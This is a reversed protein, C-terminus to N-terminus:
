DTGYGCPTALAEWVHEGDVTGQSMVVEFQGWVPYGGERWYPSGELDPGVWVIEYRWTERSGDRRMGKWENSCWADPTWPQGHFRADDWAKSWKMVLHDNGYTSDGWVTGDLDRGVGDARGVFIRAKYNYGFEDFQRASALMVTPLLFLALAIATWRARLKMM